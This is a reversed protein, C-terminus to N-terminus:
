LYLNPMNKQKAKNKWTVYSHSQKVWQSPCFETSIDWRSCVSPSFSSFVGPSVLMLRRIPVDWWVSPSGSVFHSKWFESSESVHLWATCNQVPFLALFLKVEYGLADKLPKSPTIQPLESPIQISFYLCLFSIAWLM